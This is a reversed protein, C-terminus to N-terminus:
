HLTSRRACHKIQEGKTNAQRNSCIQFGFDKLPIFNCLQSAKTLEAHLRFHTYSPFDFIFFLILFTSVRDSAVFLQIFLLLEVFTLEYIVITDRSIVHM